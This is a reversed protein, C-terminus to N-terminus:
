NRITDTRNWLNQNKQYSFYEDPYWCKPILDTSTREEFNSVLKSLIERLREESVKELKQQATNFYLNNEASIVLNIGFSNYTLNRTVQRCIPAEPEPPYLGNVIAYEYRDLDRKDSDKPIYTIGFGQPFYGTIKLLSEVIAQPYWGKEAGAKLLASVKPLHEYQYLQKSPLM